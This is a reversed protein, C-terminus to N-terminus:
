KRRILLMELAPYRSDSRLWEFVPELTVYVLYPDVMRACRNLRELVADAQRLGSAVVAAAYDPLGEMARSAEAVRGSRGLVYGRLSEVQAAAAGTKRMVEADGLASEWHGAAAHAWGRRHYSAAAGAHLTIARSSQEIAEAYRQALYLAFALDNQANASLADYRVARRVAAVGEDTSKELMAAFGQRAGASSSSPDAQAAAAYHRRAPGPDRDIGLAIAGLRAHAAALLPEAAVAREAARRADDYEGRAYHWDALVALAHACGADAHLAEELYQRAREPSHTEDLERRARAAAEWGRSARRLWGAPDSTDKLAAGVKELAQDRAAPLEPARVPPIAAGPSVRLRVEWGASTHALDGQIILGAGLRAAAARPDSTGRLTAATARGIAVFGPARAAVQTVESTLAFALADDGTFPAVAVCNAAAEPVQPSRGCGAALPLALITRRRM